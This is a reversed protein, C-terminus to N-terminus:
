NKGVFQPPPVKTVRRQRKQTLYQQWTQEDVSLTSLMRRKKEAGAVGKDAIKDGASYDLASYGALDVTVLIDAMEMNRRENAAIMVSISQGLMEFLSQSKEPDFPDVALYVAIVIDAGM